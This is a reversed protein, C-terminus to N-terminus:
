AEGGTRPMGTCLRIVDFAAHIFMLAAGLVMFGMPIWVPTGLDILSEGSSFAYTLLDWALWTFIASFTAMALAAAIRLTTKLFRNKLLEAVDITIHHHMYSCFAAGVFAVPSMAVLAYEGLSPIPLNFFRAVITVLIALIMVVLSVAAVRKELAALNDELKDFAGLLSRGKKPATEQTGNAANSM